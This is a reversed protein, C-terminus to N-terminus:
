SWKPRSNGQRQNKLSRLFIFHTLKTADTSCKDFPHIRNYYLMIFHFKGFSPFCGEWNILCDSMQHYILKIPLYPIIQSRSHRNQTSYGHVAPGRWQPLAAPQLLPFGHRQFPAIDAPLLAYPLLARVCTGHPPSVSAPLMANPLIQLPLQLVPSQLARSFCSGERVIFSKPQVFMSIRTTSIWTSLQFM